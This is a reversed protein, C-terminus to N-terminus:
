NTLTHDEEALKNVEACQAEDWGHEEQSKRYRPSKLLRDLIGTYNNGQADKTKRCRKWANFHFHTFKKERGQALFLHTLHVVPSQLVSAHVLLSCVCLSCRLLASACLRLHAVLCMFQLISYSVLMSRPKGTRASISPASRLLSEEDLQVVRSNIQM